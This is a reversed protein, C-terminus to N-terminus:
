APPLRASLRKTKGEMEARCAEGFDLLFNMKGSQALARIEHLTLNPQLYTAIIADMAAEATGIVERSAWLRMKGVLAYLLVLDGVDDKQHSLADGYLRSAELVFDNFVTLRKAQEAELRREHVQARQSIWTTAISTVGGISAGLLGFLASAYAADM